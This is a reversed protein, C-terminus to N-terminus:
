ATDHRRTRPAAFERNACNHLQLPLVATWLAPLKDTKLKLLFLSMQPVPIPYAPTLPLHYPALALLLHM